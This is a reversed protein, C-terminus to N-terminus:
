DLGTYKELIKNNVKLFKIQTREKIYRIITIGEGVEEIHFM